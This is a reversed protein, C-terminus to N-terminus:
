SSGVASCNVICVSQPHLALSHASSRRIPWRLHAVAGAAFAGGFVEVSYVHPAGYWLRVPAVLSVVAACAAAVVLGASSLECCAPAGCGREVRQKCAHWRHLAICSRVRSITRSWTISVRAIRRACTSTTSCVFVACRGCCWVPAALAFRNIMFVASANDMVIHISRDRLQPALVHMAFLAARLECWGVERAFAAHTHSWVGVAGAGVCWDGLQVTAQEVFVAFGGAGSGTTSADTSVVVDDPRAHWRQRGNWADFYRVWFRMDDRMARTVHIHHANRTVGVVADILARVFPRAGPLVNACFQMKGVLRQLERKTM